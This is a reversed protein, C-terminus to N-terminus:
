KELVKLVGKIHSQEVSVLFVDTVKALGLKLDTEITDDIRRRVRLQITRTKICQQVHDVVEERTKGDPVWDNVGIIEDGVSLNARDAPTGYILIRGSRTAIFIVFGALPLKANPVKRKNTTSKRRLTSGKRLESLAQPISVSKSM